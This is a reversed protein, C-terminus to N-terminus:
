RIRMGQCGLLYGRPLFSRLVDQELTSEQRFALRDKARVLMMFRVDRRTPKPRAVRVMACHIYILQQQQGKERSV